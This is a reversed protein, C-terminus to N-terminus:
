VLEREPGLNRPLSSKGYVVILKVLEEDVLTIV